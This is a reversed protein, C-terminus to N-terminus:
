DFHKSRNSFTPSAARLRRLLRAKLAYLLLVLSYVTCLYMPEKAHAPRLFTFICRREREGIEVTARPEVLEGYYTSYRTFTREALSCCGRGRRAQGRSLANRAVFKVLTLSSGLM